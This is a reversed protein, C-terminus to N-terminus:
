VGEIMIKARRIGARGIQGRVAEVGKHRVKLWGNVHQTYAYVLRPLLLIDFPLPM